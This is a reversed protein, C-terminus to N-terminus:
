QPSPGSLGCYGKEVNSPDDWNPNKTHGIRWAMCESGLCLTVAPLGRESRNGSTFDIVVNNGDPVDSAARSFPCWKTKAEAEPMM